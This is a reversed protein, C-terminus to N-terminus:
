NFAFVVQLIGLFGGLILYITILVKRLSDNGKKPFSYSHQDRHRPAFKMYFRILVFTPILLILGVILDILVWMGAVGLFYGIAFGMLLDFGFMKFNAYSSNTKLNVIKDSSHNM